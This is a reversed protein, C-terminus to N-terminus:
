VFITVIEFLGMYLRKRMYLSFEVLIMWDIVSSPMNKDYQCIHLAFTLGDQM